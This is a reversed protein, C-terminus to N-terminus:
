QEGANMEIAGRPSQGSYEFGPGEICPASGTNAEHKTLVAGDVDHFTVSGAVCGRAETAQVTGLAGGAVLPRAALHTGVRIAVVVGSRGGAFLAAVHLAISELLEGHKQRDDGNESQQAKGQKAHRM